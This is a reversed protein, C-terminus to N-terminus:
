VFWVGLARLRARKDEATKASNPHCVFVDEHAFQAVDHRWFRSHSLALMRVGAPAMTQGVIDVDSQECFRELRQSDLAFCSPDSDARAWRVKTGYLALNLAIQDDQVNRHQEVCSDLVGVM